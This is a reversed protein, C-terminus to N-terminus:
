FGLFMNLMVTFVTEYFVSLIFMSVDQQPCTHMRKYSHTPTPTESTLFLLLLLRLRLKGSSIVFLKM